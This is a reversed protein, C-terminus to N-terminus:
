GNVHLCATNRGHVKDAQRKCDRIVGPLVYPDEDEGAGSANSKCM